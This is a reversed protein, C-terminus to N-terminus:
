HLAFIICLHHQTMLLSGLKNNKFIKYNKLDQIAVVMAHQVGVGFPFIIITGMFAFSEFPRWIFERM